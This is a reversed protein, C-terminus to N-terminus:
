EAIVEAIRDRMVVRLQKKIFRAVRWRIYRTALPVKVVSEGKTFVIANVVASPVLGTASTNFEVKFSEEGIKASFTARPLDFEAVCNSQNCIISIRNLLKSIM